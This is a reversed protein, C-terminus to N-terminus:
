WNRLNYDNWDYDRDGDLDSHDGSSIINKLHDITEADAKLSKLAELQHINCFHEAEKGTHPKGQLYLWVHWAEHYLVSACWTIMNENCSIESLDLRPKALHVHMGSINKQNIISIHKKIFELYKSDIRSIESIANKVNQQFTDSGIIEISNSVSSPSRPPTTITACSNLCFILIFTSILRLTRRAKRRKSYSILKLYICSQNKLILIFLFCLFITM